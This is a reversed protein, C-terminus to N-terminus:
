CLSVGKGMLERWLHDSDLRKQSNSLRARRYSEDEDPLVGEPTVLAIRPDLAERRVEPSQMPQWDVLSCSPNMPDAM